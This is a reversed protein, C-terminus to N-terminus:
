YQTVISASELYRGKTPQPKYDSPECTFLSDALSDWLEGAMRSPGSCQPVLHGDSGDIYQLMFDRTDYLEKLWLIECDCYLPNSAFTFLEVPLIVDSYKKPITMIKNHSMDLWRLPPIDIPLTTLYNRSLDLYRLSIIGKFTGNKIANLQNRALNVSHLQPLSKFLDVPISSIYNGSLDLHTLSVLPDLAGSEIKLIQNNRLSIKRLNPLFYKKMVETINPNSKAEGPHIQPGKDTTRFSSKHILSIDNEGLNLEKLLYLGELAVTDIMKVVNYSMDLQMLGFPLGSPVEEFQNHSLNISKLQSTMFFATEPILNLANYSLDVTQLRPLHSFSDEKINSIQNHSLSVEKALPPLLPLEKLGLMCCKMNIGPTDQTNSITCNCPPPCMALSNQVEINLEESAALIVFLALLKMLSTTFLM